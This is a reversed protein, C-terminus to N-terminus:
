AYLIKSLPIVPVKQQNVTKEGAGVVVGNGGLEVNCSGARNSIHTSSGGDLIRIQSGGKNKSKNKNNSFSRHQVNNNEVSSIDLHNM